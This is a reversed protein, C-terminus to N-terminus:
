YILNNVDSFKIKINLSRLSPNYERLAEFDFNMGVVFNM